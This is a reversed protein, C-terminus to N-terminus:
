VCQEPGEQPRGESGDNWKGEPGGRQDATGAERPDGEVGGSTGRGGLSGRGAQSAPYSETGGGLQGCFIDKKSFKFKLTEPSPVCSLMPTIHKVPFLILHFARMPYPSVWCGKM